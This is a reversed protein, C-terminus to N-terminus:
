SRTYLTNLFLGVCALGLLLFILALSPDELLIHALFALAGAGLYAVRLSRLSQAIAGGSSPAPLVAGAEGGNLTQQGDSVEDPSRLSRLSHASPPRNWGRRELSDLFQVYTGADLPIVRGKLIAKAPAGTSRSDVDVFLERGCVLFARCVRVRKGLGLARPFCGEELSLEGCGYMVEQGNFSILLGDDDLMIAARLLARYQRWQWVFMGLFYFAILSFVFFGSGISGLSLLALLTFFVCGLVAFRSFGRASVLARRSVTFCDEM